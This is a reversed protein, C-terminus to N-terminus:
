PAVPLNEDPIPQPPPLAAPPDEEAGRAPSVPPAVDWQLRAFLIIKGSFVYGAPIPQSGGGRFGNLVTNYTKNHIRANVMTPHVLTTSSTSYFEAFPFEVSQPNYKLINTTPTTNGVVRRIRAWGLTSLASVQRLDVWANNERVKLTPDRWAGRHWVKLTAM